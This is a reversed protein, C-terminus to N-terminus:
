ENTARARLAASKLAAFGFMAARPVWRAAACILSGGGVRWEIHFAYKGSICHLDSFEPIEWPFTSNKGMLIKRTICFSRLPPNRAYAGFRSRFSQKHIRGHPHINNLSCSRCSTHHPSRSPSGIFHRPLCYHRESETVHERRLVHARCEKQRSSAGPNMGPTEPRAAAIM